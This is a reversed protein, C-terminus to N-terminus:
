ETKFVELEKIKEVLAKNYILSAKKELEFYGLHIYKNNMRITARWKNKRKCWSVGKYKSTKIVNRTIKSCSITRKIISEKRLKIGLHSGKLKQIHEQSYKKGTNSKSIKNKTAKSLKRGLTGEGGDTMNILIGTELDKRGYESILLKELDAADEWSLNEALIEVQYGAKNVIRKWYETRNNKNLPRYKNGGIGVYFVEYTDLRRHRYVCANNM